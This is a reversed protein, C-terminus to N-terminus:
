NRAVHTKRCLHSVTEGREVHFLGQVLSPEEADAQQNRGAIEEDNLRKLLENLFHASDQPTSGNLPSGSEDKFLVGCAQLLM